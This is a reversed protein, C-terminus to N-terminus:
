LRIKAHRHNRVLRGRLARGERPRRGAGALPRQSRGLGIGRLLSCLADCCDRYLAQIDANLARALGFRILSRCSVTVTRGCKTKSSKQRGAPDRLLTGYAADQVLAHKFLNLEQGDERHESKPQFHVCLRM